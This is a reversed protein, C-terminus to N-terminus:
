FKLIRLGVLITKQEALCFLHPLYLMFAYKNIIKNLCLHHALYDKGISSRQLLRHCLEEKDGPLELSLVPLSMDKDLTLSLPCFYHLQMGLTTTAYHLISLPSLSEERERQLCQGGMRERVTCPTVGTHHCKSARNGQRGLHGGGSDSLSM